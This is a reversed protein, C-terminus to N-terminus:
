YRVAEFAPADTELYNGVSKTPETLLEATSHPPSTAMAVLVGEGRGRGGGGGRGSTVRSQRSPAAGSSPFPATVPACEVEHLFFSVIEKGKM